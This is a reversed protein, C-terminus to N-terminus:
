LDAYCMNVQLISVEIVKQEFWNSQDITFTEGWSENQDSRFNFTMEYTVRDQNREALKSLARVAIITDQLCYIDTETEIHLDFPWVLEM